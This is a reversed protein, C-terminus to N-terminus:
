RPIGARLRRLLILLYPSSGGDGPPCRSTGCLTPLASLHRPEGPEHEQSKGQCEWPGPTRGVGAVPDEGYVVDRPRLEGDGAIDDADAECEAGPADLPAGVEPDMAQAEVEVAVVVEGEAQRAGVLRHLDLVLTVAGDGRGAAHPPRGPVRDAGVRVLDHERRADPHINRRGLRDR